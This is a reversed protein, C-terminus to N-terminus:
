NTKQVADFTLVVPYSTSEAHGTAPATIRICFSRAQGATFSGIAVPTTSVPTTATGCAGQAVHVTMGNATTVRVTADVPANGTATVTVTQQASEGPLLNSIAPISGVTLGITGSQITATGTATQANLYAYTAGATSVAVVVGAALGSAVALVGRARPARHKAASRRRIIVVAAVAVLASLLAVVILTM